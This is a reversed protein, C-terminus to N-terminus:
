YSSDSPSHSSNWACCALPGVYLNPVEFGLWRWSLHHGCCSPTNQIESNWLPSFNEELLLCQARLTMRRGEASLVPGKRLLRAAPCVARQFPGGKGRGAQLLLGLSMLCSSSITVSEVLLREKRSCSGGRLQSNRLLKRPWLLQVANTYLTLHISCM